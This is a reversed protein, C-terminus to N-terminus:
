SLAIYNLVFFPKHEQKINMYICSRFIAYNQAGKFSKFLGSFRQKEKVNRIAKKSADNDPPINSNFLFNLIHNKYKKMRKYFAMLDKGAQIPKTNHLICNIVQQM